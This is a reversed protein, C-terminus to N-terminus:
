LSYSCTQAENSDVPAASGNKEIVTPQEVHRGPEEFAKILRLLQSEFLDTYGWVEINGPFNPFTLCFRHMALLARYMNDDDLLNGPADGIPKYVAIADHLAMSLALDPCRKLSMVYAGLLAYQCYIEMREKIDNEFRTFHEEDIVLDSALLYQEFFHAVPSDTTITKLAELVGESDIEEVELLKTGLASILPKLLDNLDQEYTTLLPPISQIFIAFQLLDRMPKSKPREAEIISSLNTFFLSDNEIYSYETYNKKQNANNENLYNQFANCCTFITLSDLTNMPVSSATASFSSAGAINIKLLDDIANKLACNSADTVLGYCSGAGEYEKVLRLYRYLIAGLLIDSAEAFQAEIIENLVIPNKETRRAEECRRSVGEQVRGSLQVILAIQDLRTQDPKPKSFFVWGKKQLVKERYEKELRSILDCLEAYTPNSFRKAFKGFTRQLEHTAEKLKKYPPPTYPMFIEKFYDM